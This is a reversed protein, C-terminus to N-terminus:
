ENSGGKQDVIGNNEIMEKIKRIYSYPLQLITQTSEAVDDKANFWDIIQKEAMSKLKEHTKHRSNFWDVIQQETMGQMKQREKTDKREKESELMFLGINTLLIAYRLLNNLKKESCIDLLESFENIMKM